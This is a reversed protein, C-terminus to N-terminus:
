DGVCLPVYGNANRYGEFWSSYNSAVHRGLATTATRESSSWFYGYYDTEILKAEQLAAIIGLEAITPLRGGEKECLLKSILWFDHLGSKLEPTPKFDMRHAFADLESYIKFKKTNVKEGQKATIEIEIPNEKTAKTIKSM